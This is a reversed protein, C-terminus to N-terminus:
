VSGSSGQNGDGDVATPDGSDSIGGAGDGPLAAQSLHLGNALEETVGPPLAEVERAQDIDSQRRIGTDVVLRVTAVSEATVKTKNGYDDPNGREAAWKLGDMQVKKAQFNDEDVEEIKEIIQDHFAEAREKRATRIRADVGPYKHRWRLLISYSPMGPKKCIAHLTEGNVLAECIIDILVESFPLNRINRAVAEVPIGKELWVKRGDPLEVEILRELKKGLLDERSQQVAIVEGTHVDFLEILGTAPNLSAFTENVESM